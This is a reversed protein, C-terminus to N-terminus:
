ASKDKREQELTADVVMRLLTTAAEVVPRAVNDRMLDSTRGEGFYLGDSVLFSMRTLDGTPPPRRPKDWPGFRNVVLQSLRLLEGVQAALTPSTSEFIALKESQNIYRLRGDAFAALVDLGSEQPFEIIAGLLRKRPVSVKMARLSNFALARVSSEVGLDDGIRELTERDTAASLVTAHPGTGDDRPRFLRADDCFLLNYLHNVADSRYPRHYPGSPAQDGRRGFLHGLV